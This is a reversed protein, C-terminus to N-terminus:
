LDTFDKKSFGILVSLKNCNISLQVRVFAEKVVMFKLHYFFYKWFILKYLFLM